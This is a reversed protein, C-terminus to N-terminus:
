AEVETASIKDGGRSIVETMRGKIVINGDGDFAALDGSHFWGDRWQERGPEGLYGTVCCPGRGILEGPQGAALDGGTGDVIRFQTGGRPRGVTRHRVAAADSPEGAAWGGFDAGGYTSLVIGRTTAELEDALTPPLVSGATYWIRVSACDIGGLNKALMVLQAPTGCVITPRERAILNLAADASFGPMGIGSAGAIPPALWAPKAPGTGHSLVL